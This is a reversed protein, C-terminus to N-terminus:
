QGTQNHKNNGKARRGMALMVNPGVFHGSDAHARCGEDTGGAIEQKAATM